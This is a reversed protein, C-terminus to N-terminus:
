GFLAHGKPLSIQRGSLRAAIRGCAAPIPGAKPLSAEQIERFFRLDWPVAGICPLKVRDILADISYAGKQSTPTLRNVIMGREPFDDTQALALSLSAAIRVSSPEPTVVVAALDASSLINQVYGGMGPSCDILVYDADRACLHFFRHLDERRYIEERLPAAILALSSDIQQITQSPRCRGTLADGLDFLIQREVGLLLDLCRTTASADILLVRSGDRALAQGICACLLTKGVGGKGSALAIVRGM